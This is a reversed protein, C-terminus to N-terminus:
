NKLNSYRFYLFFGFPLYYIINIWNTFFNLTPILPWVSLLFAIYICVQSNNIIKQNRFYYFFIYKSIDIIIFMLFIFFYILGIIGTEALLQILNNHPHTSCSNPDYKFKVDDCLKRFTNPGQGTLPNELFMNLATKILSDHVPSFIRIERNEGIGIQEMTFDINREKIENNSFSIVLILIFSIFFSIIRLLRFESILFIIAITSLTMLVLATREGTVFVLVDSLVFLFVLILYNKYSKEICYIYLGVLLPFLRAIYGGLILKDNFPLTLRLGPIEIGSLTSGLFYQSYGDILAYTYAILLVYFFYKILQKNQDLLYWVAFSFLFFRFYFLSSRLSFLIDESFLSISILFINFTLFIYFFINKFYRNIKEKSMTALFLLCIISLFFDPLFPGTLLALPIFCLLINSIRLVNSM